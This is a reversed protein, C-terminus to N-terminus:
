GFIGELEYWVDLWQPLLEVYRDMLRRALAEDYPRGLSDEIAMRGIKMDTLGAVRMGSVDVPEGHEEELAQVWAYMGARCTNLLTGDIDLAVLKIASDHSM